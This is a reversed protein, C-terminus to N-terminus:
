ERNDDIISMVIKDHFKGDRFCAEKMRGEEIFGLNKYSKLGGYNVEPVTLWIRHLGLERFGYELVKKGALTGLGRNWFNLNGIMIYYEGSRNIKSINALGCYGVVIGDFVMAQNWTTPNEKLSSIFSRVWNKDRDPLFASLSYKVVEKNAIWNTFEESHTVELDILILGM